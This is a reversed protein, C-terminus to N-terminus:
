WDLFPGMWLPDRGSVEAAMQVTVRRATIAMYRPEASRIVPDSRGIPRLTPAAFLMRSLGTPEFEPSSSTSKTM